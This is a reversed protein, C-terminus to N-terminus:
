DDACSLCTDQIAVVAILAVNALDRYVQLRSEEITKNMFAPVWTVIHKEQFLRATENWLRADELRGENLAVLEATFLKQLFGFEKDIRDVPETRYDNPLACSDVMFGEVDVTIPNAFLTPLGKAEGLAFLFASEYPYIVTLHGPLLYLRSYEKKMAALLLEKTTNEQTFAMQPPEVNLEKACAFWDSAFTGTSLACALDQTPFKFAASILEAVDAKAAILQDKKQDTM